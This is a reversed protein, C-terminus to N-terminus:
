QISLSVSMRWPVLWLHGCQQCLLCAHTRPLPKGPVPVANCVPLPGSHCDSNSCPSRCSNSLEGGPRLWRHGAHHRAGRLAGHHGGGPGACGHGPLAERRGGACPLVAWGEAAPLAALRSSDDFCAIQLLQLSGQSAIMFARGVVGIHCKRVEDTVLDVALHHEFLTINPHASAAAVLAREIERGTVDAAHVIRRHTHGGERTLHLEGDAGRTFEAGMAVLELVRDPGERCVAEVARCRLAGKLAPRCLLASGPSGALALLVSSVIIVLSATCHGQNDCRSRIV